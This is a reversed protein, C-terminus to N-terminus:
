IKGQCNVERLLNRDMFLPMNLILKHEEQSLIIRKLHYILIKFPQEGGLSKKTHPYISNVWDEREQVVDLAGPSFKLM